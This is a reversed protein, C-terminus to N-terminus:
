VALVDVNRDRMTSQYLNNWKPQIITYYKIFNHPNIKSWSKQSKIEHIYILYMERANFMQLFYSHLKHRHQWLHLIETM